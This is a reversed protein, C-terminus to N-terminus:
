ALRLLTEQTRQSRLRLSAWLRAHSCRHRRQRRRPFRNRWGEAMKLMPIGVLEEVSEQYKKGTWDCSECGKGGCEGCLWRSQPIGRVLKRYKGAIYLPNIQLRVRNAFPNVLIVMEPTRFDVEKGIIDFLRKGIDRSFQSKMSEGHTVNFRAKFEDEREAM